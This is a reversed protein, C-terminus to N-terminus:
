FELLHCLYTHFSWANRLIQVLRRYVSSYQWFSCLSFLLSADFSLPISSFAFTHFLLWFIQSSFILWHLLYMRFCEVSCPESSMHNVSTTKRQAKKWWKLKLATSRKPRWNQKWRGFRLVASFTLRHAFDFSLDSGLGRKSIKLLSNRVYSDYFDTTNCFVIIIIPIWGKPRDPCLGSNLWAVPIARTSQM